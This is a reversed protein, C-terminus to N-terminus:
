AMNKKTRIGKSKAVIGKNNDKKKMKTRIWYIKARKWSNKGYEKCEM